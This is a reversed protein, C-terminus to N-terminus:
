SVRLASEQHLGPDFCHMPKPAEGCIKYIRDENHAGQVMTTTTYIGQEGSM